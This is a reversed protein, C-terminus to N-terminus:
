FKRQIIYYAYFNQQELGKFKLCKIVGYFIVYTNAAEFLWKDILCKEGVVFIDPSLCAGLFATSAPFTKGQFHNVILLPPSCVHFRLSWDGHLASCRKQSFWALLTTKYLQLTASLCVHTNCIPCKYTPKKSHFSTSSKNLPPTSILRTAHTCAGALACVIFICISFLSGIPASHLQNFKFCSSLAM